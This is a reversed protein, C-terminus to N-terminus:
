LTTALAALREAWETKVRAVDEASGLREHTVTVTAKEDGKPVFSILVHTEDPWTIRLSKDEIKTRVTLAVGPMWRDRARKTAFARYLTSVPVALTKSKSARFSGGRLQHTARLGRIREYGVTVTQSWWASVGLEDKVHKAIEPHSMETAGVADLVAVWEAWTRGTKDAVAEDRMGALEPWSAEPAAPRNADGTIHARAATYSEGTKAMRARVLRKLDKHKPM